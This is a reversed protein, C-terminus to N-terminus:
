EVFTGEGSETQAPQPNDTPTSNSECTNAEGFPKNSLDASQAETQNESNENSQSYSTNSQSFDEISAEPAIAGAKEIIDDEINQTSTKSNPQGSQALNSNTDTCDEATDKCVTKNEPQPETVEIKDEPNETLFNNDKLLKDDTIQTKAKPPVIIGLLVLIACIATFIDNFFGEDVYFNFKQGIINIILFLASALSVWFNYTKVRDKLKM